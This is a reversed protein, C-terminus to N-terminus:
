TGGGAGRDAAGVSGARLLQQEVRQALVPPHRGAGGGRVVRPLAVGDRHGRGSQGDDGGAGLRWLRRRGGLRGCRVQVPQGAGGDARSRQPHHHHDPQGPHRVPLRCQGLGALLLGAIVLRGLRGARGARLRRRAASSSRPASCGRAVMVARAQRLLDAASLLDRDNGLLEQVALTARDVVAQPEGTGPTGACAALGGVLALAILRRM